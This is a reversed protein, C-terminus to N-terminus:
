KNILGLDEFRKAGALPLPPLLMLLKLKLPSENSSRNRKTIMERAAMPMGGKEESNDSEDQMM